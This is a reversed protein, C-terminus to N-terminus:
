LCYEKNTDDRPSSIPANDSLCLRFTSNMVSTDLKILIYFLGTMM